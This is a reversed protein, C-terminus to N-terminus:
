AEADFAPRPVRDPARTVLRFSAVLMGTTALYAATSAWAAGIAGYSPILIIDLVITLALGAGMALSNLGPRGRGYLFATVVGAIGEAALGLLLIQAPVVAAQFDDGYVAPVIIGAILALPVAGALTLAGARPILWRARDAAESGGDRAFRPYFVWNLSQSPLRLLEAYKSAIAYGGLVGPGTLAGLLVFDLRYTLLSTLNGAQGRAGFAAISHALSLQPAGPREFFGRRSLRGCSLITSLVDSVLLAIVIAEYGQVGVAYLGLYAPVFIFEELLIAWNTGPLDDVGQLSAKSTAFLLQTVVTLGALAVVALPVDDFFLKGLLPTCVGWLATGAIGTVVAMAILTGRLRAESRRSGALFFPAAGPLGSSVVLGVIGPLVRLLAYVGVAAPGGTRAVLLTAVALSLLAGGRAAVNAALPKGHRGLPSARRSM